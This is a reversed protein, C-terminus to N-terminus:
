PQHDDLPVPGNYGVIFKPNKLGSHNISIIWYKCNTCFHIEWDSNRQTLVLAM